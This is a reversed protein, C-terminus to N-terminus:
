LASWGSPVHLTQTFSWRGLRTLPRDDAAAHGDDVALEHEIQEGIREAIDGAGDGEAGIFLAAVPQFQLVKAAVSQQASGILVARQDDVPGDAGDVAVRFHVDM